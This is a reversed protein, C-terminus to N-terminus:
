SYSHCPLAASTQLLVVGTFLQTEAHKYERKNRM